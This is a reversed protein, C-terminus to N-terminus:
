QVFGQHAIELSETAAKNNDVGLSPLSWRVPVAGIFNWIAMPQLDRGYATIEGNTRTVSGVMSSFWNAIKTTETNVFRTLKINQYKIRGPLQHVYLHNGGEEQQDLTIEAGGLEVQTWNGLDRGDLKVSFFAAILPDSGQTSAGVPLQGMEM